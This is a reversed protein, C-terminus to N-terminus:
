ETVGLQQAAALSTQQMLVALTMPGVGGPVPTILSAVKAASDFHVDGVNGPNYGADMVIAGEKLWDGQVFEPKGVAAVVIDAQKVMQPLDKTRSHCITVTANKALLLGAMPKGLIPSRGIVVAHKGSLDINASELLLMIGQPTCSPFCGPEDFWMRSFSGYTVGDVDKAVPIAEFAAREDIQKPVPHQLLIGHVDPDAGLETITAVLQETTTSDDLKIHRSAIGAQECRNHKMRIYTHSAPDEGVLVTALCVTKGTKAKINAVRAATTQMISDAVPKGLIKNDLTNSMLPM